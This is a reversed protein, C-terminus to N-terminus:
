TGSHNEESDEDNAEREAIKARIRNLDEESPETEGLEDMNVEKLLEYKRWWRKLNFEKRKWLTPDAPVSSGIYDIIRWAADVLSFRNVDNKM